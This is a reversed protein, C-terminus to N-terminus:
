IVIKRFGLNLDPEDLEFGKSQFVITVNNLEQRIKRTKFFLCFVVVVFVRLKINSKLFNM